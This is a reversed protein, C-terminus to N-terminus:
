KRDGIIIICQNRYASVYLPSQANKYLTFLKTTAEEFDGTFILPYDIPYNTEADWQVSWKHNKGPCNDVSTWAIFGDRLTSGKEIKWSKLPKPPVPKIESSKSSTQLASSKNEASVYTVEIKRDQDAYQARLGKSKLMDAVVKPWQEGANWSVTGKFDRAVAPSLRINWERPVVRHMAQLLPIDKGSDTVLSTKDPAPITVNANTSQLKPVPLSTSQSATTQRVVPKPSSIVPKPEPVVETFRIWGTDYELKTVPASQVSNAAFLSSATLLATLLNRNYM